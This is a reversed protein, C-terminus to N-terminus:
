QQARRQGSGRERSRPKDGRRAAHERGPVLRHARRQVGGGRRQWVQAL